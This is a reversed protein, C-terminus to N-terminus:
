TEAEPAMNMISEEAIIRLEAKEQESADRIILNDLRTETLSKNDTINLDRPESDNLKNM